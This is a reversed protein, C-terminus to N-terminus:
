LASLLSSYEELLGRLQFSDWSICFPCFEKFSIYKTMQRQRVAAAVPFGCPTISGGSPSAHVINKRKGMNKWYSIIGHGSTWSSSIGGARKNILSRLEPKQFCKTQSENFQSEIPIHQSGRCIGSLLEIVFLLSTILKHPDQRGIAARKLPFITLWM